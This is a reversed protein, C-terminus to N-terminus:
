ANILLNFRNYDEPIGIDIFNTKFSQGFCAKKEILAPLIDQELSSPGPKFSAFSSKQFLYCGGNILKSTADGLKLIEGTSSLQVGDFRTNEKIPHLALTCPGLQQFDKLPIPFFTDGNLVLFPANPHQLKALSHLLAGGTGLPSSEIAYEIPIDEFSNGYTEIIKESLYGVSLIFRTVGQGKWYRMLHSLFPQGRTPALPKPLDPCISRLRTGLGGALIIAEM